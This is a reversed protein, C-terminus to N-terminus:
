SRPYGHDMMESMDDDMSMDMGSHGMSHGMPSATSKLPRMTMDHTMYMPMVMLTMWDTPAYMIDLMYMNMSM